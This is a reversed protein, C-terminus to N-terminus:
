PSRLKLRQVAEQAEQTERAGAAGRALYELVERAEKTEMRELVRIARLARLREGTPVLRRHADIEELLDKARRRLELPPRDLMVRRLAPEAADGDAQLKKMARERTRFVDSDLDRILQHIEEESSVRHLHEKLFPLTQQPDAALLWAAQDAEWADASLLERWCRELERTKLGSQRVRRWEAPRLDRLEITGNHMATALTAGDPGLTEAVVFHGFDLLPPLQRGTEADWFHPGGARNNTLLVRSDDSFRARVSGRFVIPNRAWGTTMEVLQIGVGRIFVALLRGNPSFFGFRWEGRLRRPQHFFAGGKRGRNSADAAGTFHRTQDEGTSVDWFRWETGWVALTRSDPLFTLLPDSDRPVSFKRVEEGRRLDVLRIPADLFPPKAHEGALVLFHGDHAFAISSVRGASHPVARLERGTRPDYLRIVRETAAALMKADPSFALRLFPGKADRWSAREKRGAVDWLRITGEADLTALTRGDPAFAM